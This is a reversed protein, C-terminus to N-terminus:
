VKLASKLSFILAWACKRINHSRELQTQVWFTHQYLREGVVGASKLEDNAFSASKYHSKHKSLTAWSHCGDQIPRGGFSLRNCLYMWNISKLPTPLIYSSCSALDRCHQWFNICSLIIWIDKVTVSFSYLVTLHTCVTFDIARSCNAKVHVLSM